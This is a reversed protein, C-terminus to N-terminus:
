PVSVGVRYFTRAVASNTDTLSLVGGTGPVNSQGTIPAWKATPGLATSSYLTYRRTAATPLRIEAPPGSAFSAIDLFSRADLPDTDALWEDFTVYPDGDPNAAGTGPDVPSLGHTITWGDPIGDGNSDATALLFEYAGIDWKAAGDGNGDLPRPNGDPDISSIGALAAAITAPDIGADIVPSGAAPRYTGSVFQPNADINGAGWELTSNASVTASGQGGEINCSFVRAHSGRDATSPSDALTLSNTCDWILCNILTASGSGPFLCYPTGWRGDHDFFRVGRASNVITNNVLLANCQNQVSIGAAACDFIVNNMVIPACKDRLVIGHDDGGSVINGVIIASCRTPNIMDDHAPNLFVNNRVLPPPTSEGYMDIDDNDGHHGTFFCNEVVISSFRSHVGQGIGTFQCGVIRATSAGPNVPDDSIIALADGEASSGGDPLNRFTCTDFDVHSALLVIAEHYTRAPPATAANCDNDYYDLHTGASNAYEFTCHAFRSEDAEIFAIRRWRAATVERTFLIPAAATGDALLRGRVEIEASAKMLMTAGPTITLVVGAQVTVKGEVTNSGSLTRDQTINGTILDAMAPANAILFTGALALVRFKLHSPIM